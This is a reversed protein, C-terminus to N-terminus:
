DVAPPGSYWQGRRGQDALRDAVDNWENGSHGKVHRIWLKGRKAEMTLKWEERALTVLALNKRKRVKYVSAVVLAAYLSDHRIVVPKGHAEPATRAWRLLHLIAEVEASNNTLQSM